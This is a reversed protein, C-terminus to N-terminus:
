STEIYNLDEYLKKKSSLFKIFGVSLFAITHIGIKKTHTNIYVIHLCPRGSKDMGPRFRIGPRGTVGASLKRGLCELRKEHKM